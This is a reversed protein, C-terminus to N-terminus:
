KTQPMFLPTDFFMAGTRKDEVIILIPLPIGSLSTLGDPPTYTYVSGIGDDFLLETCVPNAVFICSGHDVGTPSQHLSDAIIKYEGHLTVVQKVGSELKAKLDFLEDVNKFKDLNTAADKGYSAGKKLSDWINNLLGVSGTVLDPGLITVNALLPHAIRMPVEIFAHPASFVHFSMSAGSVVGTIEMGQLYPLATGRAVSMATAWGTQWLIDGAYKKSNKYTKEAQEIIKDVMFDVALTTMVEALTSKPSKIGTMRRQHPLNALIALQDTLAEYFDPIVRSTLVIMEPANMVLGYESMTLGDIRRIRDLFQDMLSRLVSLEARARFAATVAQLDDISDRLVLQTMLDDATPQLLPNLTQLHELTPAFGQPLAIPTALRLTAIDLARWTNVMQALISRMLPEDNAARAARLAPGFDDFAQLTSMLAAFQAGNTSKGFPQPLMVTFTASASRANVNDTATVTFAGLTDLAASLTTGSVSPLSGLFPTRAPAVSYTLAPLAIANGNLDFAQPQLTITQDATIASSSLTLALGNGASVNLTANGPPASLGAVPSQAIVTGTPANDFQSVATVTFGANTFRSQALTLPLGIVGPATVPALGKSLTLKVTANRPTDATNAFPEQALVTGIPAPNYVEAIVRPILLAAELQPRAADYFQGIVNPVTVATPSLDIIFSQETRAGQTDVAAVTMVIRQTGCARCSYLGLNGTIAEVTPAPYSTADFSSSVLEYHVTDGLDPDVATITYITKVGDPSARLFASPPISTIVPPQNPPKIDIAVTAPLSDAAGDNAKYAFSTSQAVRPDIVTGQQIQQRFDRSVSGDYLIKAADNIASPRFNLQNQVKPGPAWNHDAGSIRMASGKCAVPGTGPGYNCNWRDHVHVLIDIHGDDDADVLLPNGHQYYASSETDISWLEAGTRGNLIFLRRTSQLIVEPVGDLNLDYVYLPSDTTHPVGSIPAIAPEVDSIIDPPLKAWLLTGDQRYAYVFNDGAMLIEPAGDGDADAVSLLGNIWTFPIPITRRLSGDHNFIHIGGANKQPGNDYGIIHIIVEAKGDGDLDAVAVSAPEFGHKLGPTVSAFQAQWSLTWTGNVLKWVDGGSIIEIQGDGDLDAVIPINQRTPTDNLTQAQNATNPATLVLDIAGTAADIIYTAKCARGEDEVLGTLTRCAARGLNNSNPTDYYPGYVDTALFRTVLKTSGGATLKALTPVSGDASAGFFPTVPPDAPASSTATAYAGPHARSLRESKWQTAVKGGTLIQSANVAFYRDPYGSYGGQDCNVSGFLYIDGSGTVNGLTYQNRDSQIQCGAVNANTTISKDFQWLQAGDSGQWARLNGFDNSVYDVVNNDDFDAALVFAGNSGLGWRWKVVPNLANNLPLASPASYNFAGDVGFASLSGKDPDSLKIASLQESDADLDNNLLGTAANITLTEGVKVSYNDDFAEPRNNPRITLKFLGVDISGSNDLVKVKVYHEGYQSASPQWSLAGGSAVTLGSPGDVLAYTLTDGSDPDVASLQRTFIAGSTSIADVKSPDTFHPPRNANLVTIKFDAEVPPNTSDSVRVKVNHEGLQADTPTFALRTSGTPTLAAGTPAVPLSYSLSDRPNPDNAALPMTLTSGLRMIQNTFPGIVPATNATAAIVVRIDRTSLLVGDSATFRLVYTGPVDFDFFAATTRTNITRATNALQTTLLSPPSNVDQGFFVPRAGEVQSWHYTLIAGTPLGDDSVTPTFSQSNSPLTLALTAPLGSIVPALNGTVVGPMVGPNVRITIDHSSSLNTDSVTLRLVYIGSRGAFEVTTEKSNPSTFSVPTGSIKSWAYSLAAPPNPLGDDTVTPAFLLSNNPLTLDLEAPLNSIVPALNNPVISPNLTITIESSSSLNSDSVTLHLVFVGPTQGFTVTTDKTNPSSFTVPAGSTESWTYTLAAPPNPLGDDFVTPVLNLSNNPLTLELAAPHDAIVPALNGPVFPNVTITVDSDASLLSDSGTLRLLYGGAQNFTATTTLSTTSSFDVTGPGSVKSWTLTIAGPPKPLGDDSATGILNASVNGSPSPLTITQQDGAAITPTVNVTVLRIDADIRFVLQDKKLLAFLAVLDASGEVDGRTGTIM